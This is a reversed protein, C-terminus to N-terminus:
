VTVLRSLNGGMIKAQDDLSLHELANIYHTPQALGEPHPYDSGYLVRDVGVLNILDDIGEEYFPSVHIRNKIEEIPNGPFAEPAKKWVDAMNDLLPVDVEVRGRHGRGEADPVPVARRSNGLLGGRGSGPAVRQDHVDCQDPVAADGPRRRGVRLHVPFLRQRQLAHRGARRTRRLAALVPRVRAARVIATRPFRPGSGPPDPHVARRTQGGLGAGRGSCRLRTPLWMRADVVCYYVVDCDAMAACLAADDFVDGYCREVDLDDIAKTSSTNRLM